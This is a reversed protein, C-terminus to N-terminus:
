GAGLSALRYPRIEARVGRIHYAAVDRLRSLIWPSMLHASNKTYVLDDALYVCAHLPAEPGKTNEPSLLLLDGFRLPSSAPRFRTELHHSLTESGLYIPLPHPNFFNIATWIGDPARGSLCDDQSPFTFLQSRPGKPLLHAIDLSDVGSTRSVAELLPRSNFSQQLPAWYRQLESIDPKNGLDLRAILTRTRTLIRLLQREKEPHTVHRLLLPFDSFMTIQGEAYTLAAIQSVLKEPLHSRDLVASLDSGDFQFPYRHFPNLESRALVLYLRARVSPALSEVLDAKPFVRTLNGGLAWTRRDMVQRLQSSSLGSEAFVKEIQEPSMEEFHWVTQQSPLVLRRVLAEPAELFTDYYELSGWPGPQCKRISPMSRATAGAVAM